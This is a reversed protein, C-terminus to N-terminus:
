ESSAFFIAQVVRRAEGTLPDIKMEELLRYRFDKRGFLVPSSRTAPIQLHHREGLKLGHHKM